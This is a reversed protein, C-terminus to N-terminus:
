LMRRKPTKDFTMFVSLLSLPPKNERIRGRTASVLGGGVGVHERKWRVALAFFFTGKSSAADALLARLALM